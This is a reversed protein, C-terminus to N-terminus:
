ISELMKIIVDLITKAWGPLFLSGITAITILIPLLVKIWKWNSKPPQPEPRPTPKPVPAPEPKPEPPPPVPNPEPLKKCFEICAAYMSELENQEQVMKTDVFKKFESAGSNVADRYTAFRGGLAFIDLNDNYVKSTGFDSRIVGWCHLLLWNVKYADGAVQHYVILPLYRPYKTQFFRITRDTTCIPPPKSAIAIAMAGGIKQVRFLNRHFDSDDNVVM